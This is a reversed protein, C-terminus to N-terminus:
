FSHLQHTLVQFPNRHMQGMHTMFGVFNDPPDERRSLNSERFSERFSFNSRNLHRQSPARDRSAEIDYTSARIQMDVDGRPAIAAPSTSRVIPRDGKCEEDEKKEEGVLRGHVPPSASDARNNPLSSGNSTTHAPQPSPTQESGLIVEDDDDCLTGSVIGQELDDNKSEM